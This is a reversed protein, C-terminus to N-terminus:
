NLEFEFYYHTDTTAIAIIYPTQDFFVLTDAKVNNYTFSFQIRYKSMDEIQLKSDVMEIPQAEIQSYLNKLPKIFIM